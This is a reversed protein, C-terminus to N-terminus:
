IAFWTGTLSPSLQESLQSVQWLEPSIVPQLYTAVGNTTTLLGVGGSILPANQVNAKLGPFLLFPLM